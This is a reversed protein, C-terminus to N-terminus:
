PMKRLEDLVEEYNNFSSREGAPFPHSLLLRERFKALFENGPMEVVAKSTDSPVSDWIEKLPFTAPMEILDSHVLPFPLPKNPVLSHFLLASGDNCVGLLGFGEMKVEGGVREKFIRFTERLQAANELLMAVDSEAFDHLVRGGQWHLALMTDADFSFGHDSFYAKVRVSGLQPHRFDFLVESHITPIVVPLGKPTLAETDLWFPAPIEHAADVIPDAGRYLRMVPTLMSRYRATAHFGQGRAWDWFGKVGRVSQSQGNFVFATDRTSAETDKILLNLLRALELANDFYCPNAENQYIESYRRYKGDRVLEFKNEPRPCGTIRLEPVKEPNAEVSTTAPAGGMLKLMDLPSVGGPSTGDKQGRVADLYAKQLSRAEKLTIRAGPDGDSDNTLLDILTDESGVPRAAHAVGSLNTIPQGANEEPAAPASQLRPETKEPPLAGKWPQDFCSNLAFAPALTVLIKLGREFRM